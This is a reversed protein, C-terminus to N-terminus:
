RSCRASAPREATDLAGDVSSHRKRLPHRARHLDGGTGRPDAAAHRGAIPTSSRPAPSRATCRPPCDPPPRCSRHRARGGRGIFLRERPQVHDNDRSLTRLSQGTGADFGRALARDGSLPVVTARRRAAPAAAARKCRRPVTCGRSRRRRCFVSFAQAAYEPGWSSTISTSVPISRPWKGNASATTSRRMSRSRVSASNRPAADRDVDVDVEAGGDQQDVDVDTFAPDAKMAAALQRAAGTCRTRTTPRRAHIPLHQELRSRGLPVDQVPNM